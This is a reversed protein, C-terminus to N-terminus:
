AIKIEKNGKKMILSYGLANAINILNKYTINQRAGSRINQIISPAVGSKNALKRVSLSNERMLDIIIESLLFEKYGKDFEMKFKKNKMEKEFTSLIKAKKNM